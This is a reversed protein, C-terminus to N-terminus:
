CPLDPELFPAQRLISDWPQTHPLFLTSPLQSTASCSLNKLEAKTCGSALALEMKHWCQRQKHSPPPTGLVGKWSVAEGWNLNTILLIATFTRQQQSKKTGRRAETVQLITTRVTTNWTACWWWCCLLLQPSVPNTYLLYHHTVLDVQLSNLACLLHLCTSLPLPHEIFNSNQRM